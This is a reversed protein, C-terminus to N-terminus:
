MICSYIHKPLWPNYIYMNKSYSQSWGYLLVVLVDLAENLTCVYYPPLVFQNPEWSELESEKEEKM